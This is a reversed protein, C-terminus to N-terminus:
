APNKGEHMADRVSTSIFCDMDVFSRKHEILLLVITPYMATTQIYGEWIITCLCDLWSGAEPRNVTVAALLQFIGYIGGSEVLMLLIRQAHSWHSGFRVNWTGRSTWLRYAILLVSTVNTALSLSFAAYFLSRTLHEGAYYAELKEFNLTIVLFALSTACTGVLFLSPIFVVRQQWSGTCIVWARWIVIVDNVIQLGQLTWDLIQDQLVIRDVINSLWADDLPKDVAVGTILARSIQIWFLAIDATWYLGALVFSLLTAGLMAWTTRSKDRRRLTLLTSICVMSSFMGYLLTSGTVGALSASYSKGLEKLVRREEFTLM